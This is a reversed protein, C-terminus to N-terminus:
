LVINPLMIAHRCPGSNRGIAKLQGMCRKCKPIQNFGKKYASIITDADQQAHDTSDDNPSSFVERQLKLLCKELEDPPMSPDTPVYLTKNEICRCIFDRWCQCENGMYKESKMLLFPNGARVVLSKSRTIVTNFVYQSCPSKTLDKLQGEPTPEATSLFV